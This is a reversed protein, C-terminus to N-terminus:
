LWLKKLLYSDIRLTRAKTIIERGVVKSASNQTPTEVATLLITLGLKAAAKGVDKSITPEIDSRFM